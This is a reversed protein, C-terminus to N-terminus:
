KKGEGAAAAATKAADAAAPKADAPAVTLYVPNSAVGQPVLKQLPVQPLKKSDFDSSLASLVSWNAKIIALNEESLSPNVATKAGTALNRWLHYIAADDQESDSALWGNRVAVPALQRLLVRNARQVGARFRDALDAPM